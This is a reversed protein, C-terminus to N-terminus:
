HLGRGLATPYGCVMPPTDGCWVGEKLGYPPYLHTAAKEHLVAGLPNKKTNQTLPTTNSNNTHAPTDHLETPPPKRRGMKM